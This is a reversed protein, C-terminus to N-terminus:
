RVRGAGVVRSTRASRIGGPLVGAFKDKTGVSLGQTIAVAAWHAAAGGCLAARRRMIGCAGM